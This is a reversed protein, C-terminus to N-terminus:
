NIERLIDASSYPNFSSKRDRCSMYDHIIQMTQEAAHQEVILMEVSSQM